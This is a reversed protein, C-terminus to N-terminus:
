KPPYRTTRGSRNRLFPAAYPAPTVSPTQSNPVAAAADVMDYECGAVDAHDRDCPILLVAHVGGDPLVGNGAIEGRDNIFVADIDTFDSGPLLLVNLNIAAGGNEWLWGPGPSNPGCSVQSEGVVQSRSNISLARSCESGKPTGLDTMVGRRWLFAHHEKNGPINSFGVVEGADNVSYAVGYSGGLTGLDKIRKKDWLFPHVEKDGKLNSQGVVQGRNNLWYPYGFTGGLTGLDLM